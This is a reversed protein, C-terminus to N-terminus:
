KTIRFWRPHCNGNSCCDGGAKSYKLKAESLLRKQIQMNRLGCVLRDRLAENLNGGFNCHTVLKRLEAVYSLISEGEHQNRKYFRFRELIELPSLSMTKNFHCLKTISIDENRMHLLYPKLTGIRKKSNKTDCKHHVNILGLLLRHVLGGVTSKFM